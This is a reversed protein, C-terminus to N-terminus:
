VRLWVVQSSLVLLALVVRRCLLCGLVCLTLGFVIVVCRVVM